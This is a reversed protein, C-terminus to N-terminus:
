EILASCASGGVSSGEHVFVNEADEVRRKGGVVVHDSAAALGRPWEEDRRRAPPQVRDADVVRM